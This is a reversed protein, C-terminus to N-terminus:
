SDVKFDQLTKMTVKLNHHISREKQTLRIVSGDEETPLYDEEAGRTTLHNSETTPLQRTKQLQSSHVLPRSRVNNSAIANPRKKASHAATFLGGAAQEPLGRRIWHVISLIVWCSFFQYVFLGLIELLQPTLRCMHSDGRSRDDPHSSSMGESSRADEERTMRLSAHFLSCGEETVYALGVM